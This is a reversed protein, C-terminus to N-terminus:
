TLPHFHCLCEASCSSFSVLMTSITPYLQLIAKQASRWASLYMAKNFKLPQYSVTFQKILFDLQSLLSYHRDYQRYHGEWDRSRSFANHIRPLTRSQKWNTVGWDVSDDKPIKGQLASRMTQMLYSWRLELM